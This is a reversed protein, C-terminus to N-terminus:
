KKTALRLAAIHLINWGDNNKEYISIGKEIFKNVLLEVVEKQGFMCAIHLSNYILLEVIENHGNM